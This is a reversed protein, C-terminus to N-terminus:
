KTEKGGIRRLPRLTSSRSLEVICRPKFPANSVYTLSSRPAM